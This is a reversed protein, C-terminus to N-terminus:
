PIVPLVNANARTSSVQNQQVGGTTPVTSQQRLVRQTNIPTNRSIFNLFYNRLQPTIYIMMCGIIIMCLSTILGVIGFTYVYLYGQIHAAIMFIITPFRLAVLISILTAIRKIVTLDRQNRQRQHAGLLTTTTRSTSRIFNAIWVYAVVIFVIPMLYIASIHYTEAVYNTYPVLCYYENALMQYWHFIIPPLLILIAIFWQGLILIIFLRHNLLFKKKYFVVRCLRYFAQLYYSHYISCVFIDYLLGWFICFDYSYILFGNTFNSIAMFCVTLCALFAAFCTNYTLMLPIDKVVRQHKFITLIIGFYISISFINFSFNLINLILPITQM